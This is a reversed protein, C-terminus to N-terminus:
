IIRLCLVNRSINRGNYGEDYGTRELPLVIDLLLLLIQYFVCIAVKM